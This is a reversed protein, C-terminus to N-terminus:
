PATILRRIGDRFLVEVKNPPLVKRVLGLGFTPHDLLSGARFVLGAPRYAVADAPDRKGVGAAWEQEVASPRSARRPPVAKPAGQGRLPAPVTAPRYNHVGECVTCAVRAPASGMLSVILHRTDRRCKTCRSRVSDGVCPASAAM